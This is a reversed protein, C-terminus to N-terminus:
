VLGALRGGSDGFRGTEVGMALAVTLHLDAITNRAKPDFTLHQGSKMGLNKGGAVLTPLDWAQHTRGAGGGYVVITNDIMKSGDGEDTSALFKLLNSFRDVGFSDIKMLQKIKSEDNGHHSYDHHNDGIGGAETHPAYTIVRTSDSLFALYSLEYMGDIWMERDHGNNPKAELEIDSKKIDLKPKERDAWGEMRQIRREVSRVSEMYEEVKEQDAKGLQRYFSKSDELVDDLISRKEAYRRKVEEISNADPTTFLRDFLRQPNNEAPIPSGKQDFALTKSHGPSGSGGGMSIEISGFRTESEHRAAIVQDISISNQYDKGATATLDACTLWTDGVAHGGKSNPNALGSVVTLHEQYPKLSELSGHLEYNAGEGKPTWAPMHAGLPHYIYIVRPPAGLSQPLPEMLRTAASAKLPLMAEL